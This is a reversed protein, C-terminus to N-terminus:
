HFQRSYDFYGFLYGSGVSNLLKAEYLASSGFNLGVRITDVTVPLDFYAPAPAEAEAANATPAAALTLCATLAFAILKKVTNSM